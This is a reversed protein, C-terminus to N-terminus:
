VNCAMICVTSNSTRSSVLQDLKVLLYISKDLMTWLILDPLMHGKRHTTVLNCIAILRLTHFGNQFFFATTSSFTLCTSSSGELLGSFSQFLFVVTKKNNQTHKGWERLLIMGQQIDLTFLLLISPLITNIQPLLIEM